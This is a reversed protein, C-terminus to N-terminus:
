KPGGVTPTGPTGTLVNPNPRSKLNHAAVIAGAILLAGLGLLVWTRNSIGFPGSGPKKAGVISTQAISATATQGQYSATVDIKFPGLKKNLQIGYAGARGQADTNLTLTHRGHEFTGGPGKSPLTFVITAGQIPKDNEDTVQVVPQIRFKEHVNHKAGDGAVVALHLTSEQGRLLNTYLLCVLFLSLAKM